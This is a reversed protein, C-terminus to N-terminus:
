ARSAIPGGGLCIEDDYIALIQGPSVAKQPDDFVVVLQGNEIRIRCPVSLHRHRIKCSLQKDLEKPPSGAVWAFQSIDVQTLDFCQVDAGLVGGCCIQRCAM